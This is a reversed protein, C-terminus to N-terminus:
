HANLLVNYKSLSNGGIFTENWIQRAVTLGDAPNGGESITRNLSYAYLLACDYFSTVM